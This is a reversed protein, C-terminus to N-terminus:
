DNTERRIDRDRRERLLPKDNFLPEDSRDARIARSRDIM